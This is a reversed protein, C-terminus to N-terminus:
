RRGRVSTPEVEPGRMRALLAKAGSGIRYALSRPADLLLTMELEGGLQSKFHTVSNLAADTLDAAAYGLESLAEFSKWRLFASVGSRQFEKDTAAACVHCVPNPGLLVLQSAVVRGGPARVEFLRCLSAARLEQFFGRFLAEPLYQEHKRRQMISAHLRFFSEFDGDDHFCMGERECRKVLRRLNQEVRNWLSDLDGIKVVYTYRPLVGWGAALFIRADILSSRSALTLRAYGRQTIASELAALTKLHRSTQESPYRTDYRRLLAGNYYLLPRPSVYPGYRSNNEYLAVGGALEDGHRVGLVVFRGGEARSLAALYQPVAYISGEPSATVFKLWEGYHCEPLEETRYGSIM